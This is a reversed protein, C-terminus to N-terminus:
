RVDCTEPGVPDTCHVPRGAVGRLTHAVRTAGKPDTGTLAERFRAAFDSQGDRFKVLLRTYLERNNM